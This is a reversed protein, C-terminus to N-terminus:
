PASITQSSPHPIPPTIPCEPKDPRARSGAALRELCPQRGRGNVVRRRRRDPARHRRPAILSPRRGQGAHARRRRPCLSRHARRHAAVARRSGARGPSDTGPLRDRDLRRAAPTQTGGRDPRPHDSLTTRFGAVPAGVRRNARDRAQGRAPVTEVDARRHLRGGARDAGPAGRESGAAHPTHARADVAAGVVRGDVLRNRGAPRPLLCRVRRADGRVLPRDHRRHFQRRIRRPRFLRLADEGPRQRAGVSRPGRGQHGEHRVQLRRALIPRARRGRAAEGRHWPGCYRNWRELIEPLSRENPSGPKPRVAQMLRTEGGAAMSYLSARAAFLGGRTSPIAETLLSSLWACGRVKASAVTRCITGAKRSSGIARAASLTAEASTCDPARASTAASSPGSTESSVAHPPSQTGSTFAVTLGNLSLRPARTRSRRIKESCTSMTCAWLTPPAQIALMAAARIG